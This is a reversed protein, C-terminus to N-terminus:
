TGKKDVGVVDLVQCFACASTCDFYSKKTKRLIEITSTAKKKKLPQM